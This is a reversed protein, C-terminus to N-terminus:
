GPPEVLRAGPVPGRARRVTRCAGSASLAAVLDLAHDESRALFACTPGSGCVVAGLAGYQEGVDLTLRLGPRLSCAAPQLDNRLARGLAVPDAARLAAMVSDSVRPEPVYRGIRLRDCEAYVTPTALGVEALALAWHYEGRALAPTLREGRGHGVATGGVLAFPVDSGLTAAVQLLDERETRLGWLADCALLAAAADASGGAMGAAVPISKALRLRVNPAVGAHEALAYAARVALNSEDAPTGAATTGAVEVVVGLAPEATVEDYLDVAQYVTALDHYGDPRRAGVALQLNVKAPARVTVTWGARESVSRDPPRGPASPSM